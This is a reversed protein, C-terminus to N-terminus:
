GGAGYSSQSLLKYDGINGFSINPISNSTGGTNAAVQKGEGDSVPFNIFETGGEMDQSIMDAKEDNNSKIPEILGQRIADTELMIDDM